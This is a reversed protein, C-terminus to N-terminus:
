FRVFDDLDFDAATTDLAVLARNPQDGTTAYFLYTDGGVQIAAIENSGEHATMLTQAQQIAGQYSTATGTLLSQPRGSGTRFEIRDEGLTFDTIVTLMSPDSGAASASGIVFLDAGQGGTMTDIGIQSDITDNGLDGMVINRGAGGSISDNGQGGRLVDNGTWGDIQDNGTNGNITDNGENGFIYDDGAGGNIRDSGRGGDLEDNGANGQIYDAGDDGNITDSGDPGGSPSQGYLHDNGDGGYIIDAGAGGMVVDHGGQVNFYDDKAGGTVTDNGAFIAIRATSARAEPSAAFIAGLDLNTSSLSYVLAGDVYAEIRDITGDTPHNGADYVIDSGILRLQTTANLAYQLSTPLHESLETTFALALDLRSHWYAFSDAVTISTMRDPHLAGQRADISSPDM